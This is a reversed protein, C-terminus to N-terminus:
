KPEKILDPKGGGTTDARSTEASKKFSVLSRQVAKIETLIEAQQRIIVEYQRQADARHRDIKAMLENHARDRLRISEEYRRREERENTEKKALLEKHHQERAKMTQAHNHQAHKEQRLFQQMLESHQGQSQKMLDAHSQKTGANVQNGTEALEHQRIILNSYRHAIEGELQNLRELIETQGNIIKSQRNTDQKHFLQGLEKFKDGIAKRSESYEAAEPIQKVSGGQEYSDTLADENPSENKGSDVSSPVASPIM